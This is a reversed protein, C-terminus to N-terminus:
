TQECIGSQRAPSLTSPQPIWQDSLNFSTGSKSDSTESEVKTETPLARTQNRPQEHGAQVLLNIYM